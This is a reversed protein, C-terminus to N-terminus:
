LRYCNKKESNLHQLYAWKEKKGIYLLKERSSNCNDVTYTFVVVRPWEVAMNPSEVETLLFVKGIAMWM